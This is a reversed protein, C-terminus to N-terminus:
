RQIQCPFRSKGYRSYASRNFLRVLLWKSLFKIGDRNHTQVFGLELLQPRFIHGPHFLQGVIRSLGKPFQDVHEIGASVGLGSCIDLIKRLMNAREKIPPDLVSLPNRHRSISNLGSEAQNFIAYFM